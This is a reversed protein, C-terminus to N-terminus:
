KGISMRGARTAGGPTERFKVRCIQDTALGRAGGRVLSQMCREDGKDRETELFGFVLRRLPPFDLPSYGGTRQSDFVEPGVV